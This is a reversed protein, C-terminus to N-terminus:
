ADTVEWDSIWVKLGTQETYKNIVEFEERLFEKIESTTMDDDIDIIEDYTDIPEYTHGTEYTITYKLKSM